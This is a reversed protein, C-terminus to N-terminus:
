NKAYDGEWAERIQGTRRYGVLNCAERIDHRFPDYGMGLVYEIEDDSWNQSYLRWVYLRNRRDMDQKVIYPILPLLFGVVVGILPILVYVWM